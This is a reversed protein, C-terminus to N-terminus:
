YHEWIYTNRDEVHEEEGVRRQAKAAIRAKRVGLLVSSALSHISHERSKRVEQVELKAVATQLM